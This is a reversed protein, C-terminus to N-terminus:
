DFLQDFAVALAPSDLVLEGFLDARKVEVRECGLYGEVEVEVDRERDEGVGDVAAEGAAQVGAVVLLRGVRDAVVQDVAGALQAEGGGVDFDRQAAAGV